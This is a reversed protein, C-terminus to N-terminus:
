HQIMGYVGMPTIEFLSDFLIHRVKMLCKGDVREAVNIEGIVCNWV